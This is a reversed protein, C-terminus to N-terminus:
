ASAKTIRGIQGPRLTVVDFALWSAIRVDGPRTLRDVSTMLDGHIVLVVNRPDFALGMEGPLDSSRFCRAGSLYARRREVLRNTGGPEVAAKSAASHLTKGMIWTLAMGDADADVLANETDVLAATNIGGSPYTSASVGALTSLGATVDHPRDTSHFSGVLVQRVIERRITEAMMSEVIGALQPDQLELLGSVETEARAARRTTDYDLSGLGPDTTETFARAPPGTVARGLTGVPLKGSPQRPTVMGFEYFLGATSQAPGIDPDYRRGRGQEDIAGAPLAFAQSIPIAFSGGQPTIAVVDGSPQRQGNRLPDVLGCALAVLDSYTYTETTM